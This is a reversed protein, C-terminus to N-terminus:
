DRVQNTLLEKAFLVRNRIGRQGRLDEWIWRLKSFHILKASPERLQNKRLQPLFDELLQTNFLSHVVELADACLSSVAKQIAASYFQDLGNADLSEAM